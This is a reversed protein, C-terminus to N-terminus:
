PLRDGFFDRFFPDDMFPFQQPARVRMQSHVTVVAPAVRSVVDAYSNQAAGVSPPTSAVPQSSSPTSANPNKCAVLTMVVATLIMLRRIKGPVRNRRDCRRRSMM